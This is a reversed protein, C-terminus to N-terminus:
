YLKAEKMSDMLYLQSGNRVAERAAPLVESARQIPYEIYYALNITSKAKAPLALTWKKLGRDGGEIEQPEPELKRIKVTFDEHQSVPVAEEVTVTVPQDKLNEVTISYAAEIRTRKGSSRVSSLKSDLRRTVKITEDVGLYFRAEEGPATFDIRSTGILDGGLYVSADGPLLPLKGAYQARGDVYTCLSASPVVAYETKLPMKESALSVRHPKGDKRVTERTAVPFTVSTGRATVSQYLRLVQGENDLLNKHAVKNASYRTLSQTRLQVGPDANALNANNDFQQVVQVGGLAWPDLEPKSTREVPRSASLTLEVGTWDEGTAQQIVAYSVLEINARDADVRADYSPFWTAGPLLGSLSITADGGAPSELAITVKKMELREGGRKDSLERVKAEIKPALDRQKKRADRVKASNAALRHTVLDLMKECAAVDPLKLDGEGAMRSARDPTTSQLSHLFRAESDLVALDDNIAGDTDRLAMIEDEIRRVDAALARELFVTEVRMGRVTAGSASVRLSGDALEAPLDSLAFENMGPLCKVAATRTVLARDLYVTVAKIASPAVTPEASYAFAASSLLLAFISIRPFM